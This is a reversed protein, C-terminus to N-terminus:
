AVSAATMASSVAPPVAPVAVDASRSPITANTYVSVGAAYRAVPSNAVRYMAPVECHPNNIPACSEEFRGTNEATLGCFAAPATEGNDSRPFTIPRSRYTEFLATEVEISSLANITTGDDTAIM